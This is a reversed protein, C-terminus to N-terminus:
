ICSTQSNEVCFGIMRVLNVHHISAITAVEALFSKKIRGFGDLRKVAVKTGDTLIGEFVTGFGGAGLKKTFNETMAKLDDYSFKTFLGPVHDLYIEEEADDVEKKKRFRCALFVCVLLFLSFIAGLSFGLLLKSSNAMRKKKAMNQVKLYTTSNYGTKEKENKKLTFVQSPLYCNGNSPNLGYHFIAAKCSCNKLCAQKCTESDIEELDATFTFYTIDELEVFSMHHQSAQCSSSSVEPCGLDPKSYNMEQNYNTGNTFQAQCSCGQHVCVGYKGCTLPYDCYGFDQPLVDAESYPSYQDSNYLRLVGDSDLRLYDVTDSGFYEQSVHRQFPIIEDADSTNPSPIYFGLTGNFYSVYCPEKSRKSGNYVFQYYVQPPDSGVSAFLGENTVSLSFMGTSQNSPSANSTLNKGAVLKQGQLLSDVPHDFSQWVTGGNEDLLMLNGMETLDLGAVSKNGGSTSTTTSWTTTGDSDKLVLGSRTLELTANKKVPNNRNASWVLLSSSTYIAFLYTDCNGECFFGCGFTGNDSFDITTTKIGSWETFYTSSINAEYSTNTSWAISPDAPIHYPLVFCSLQLLM